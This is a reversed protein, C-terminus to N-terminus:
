ILWELLNADPYLYKDIIKTVLLNYLIKVRYQKYKKHEDIFNILKISPSWNNGCSITNCCLCPIGYFLNLENKTKESQIYLKKKYDKYNVYIQSPPKFPYDNSVIFSYITSENNLIITIQISSNKISINEDNQMTEVNVYAGTKHLTILENAIRKKLGNSPMYELERLVRLSLETTLNSM